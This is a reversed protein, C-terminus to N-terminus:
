DLDVSIGTLMLKKELLQISEITVRKNGINVSNEPIGILAVPNGDIETWEVNAGLRRIASSLRDAISNVPIPLLGTRVRRIRIAIQGPIKTCFADVDAQIIGQIRSSNFRFAIRLIDKEIEVRPESVNRPLTGPFKEPLDSALWGNIQGETFIAQWQRQTRAKNQLDIFQKEFVRGQEAQAQDSVALATQYFEPEKQASAYLLWGTVAVAVITLLMARIALRLFRRLRGVSAKNGARSEQKHPAHDSQSM